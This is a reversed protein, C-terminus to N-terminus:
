AEIAIGIARIISEDRWMIAPQHEAIVILRAARGLACQAVFPQLLAVQLPYPL